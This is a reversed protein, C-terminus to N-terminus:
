MNYIQQQIKLIIELHYSITEDSNEQHAIKSFSNLIYTINICTIRKIASNQPLINQIITIYHFLAVCM